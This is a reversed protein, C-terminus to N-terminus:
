KFSYSELSILWKKITQKSQKRTMGLVKQEFRSVGCYGFVAKVTGYLTNKWWLVSYYWAPGDATWVCLVKKAKMLGVPKAGPLITRLGFTKILKGLLPDPVFQFMKKSQTIGDLFNKFMGPYGFNWMPGTCVVYDASAIFDVAPTFKAPFGHKIPNQHVVPYDFVRFIEATHGQKKAAKVIAQTNTEGLSDTDPHAHIIAINM